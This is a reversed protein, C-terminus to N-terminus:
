LGASLATYSCETPIKHKQRESFIYILSCSQSTRPYWWPLCQCSHDQQSSINVHRNKQSALQEELIV